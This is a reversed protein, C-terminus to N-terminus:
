TQVLDISIKHPAAKNGGFYPWLCYGFFKNTPASQTVQNINYDESIVSFLVKNGNIRIIFRYEKDNEIVCIENIVRVGKIYSYAYIHIKNDLCNWGFRYSNNHHLGISFGFLKNVDFRDVTEDLYLTSSDFKVLYAMRNSDHFMNLLKYIFGDSYHRDKEITFIM